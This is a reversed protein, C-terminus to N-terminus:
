NLRTKRRSWGLGVLGLGVMALTAPAPVGQSIEYQFNAGFYGDENVIFGTPFSLTPSVVARSTNWTVGASNTVTANRLYQLDTGAISAVVYDSGASLSIGSINRYRFGNASIPNSSLVSTSALLSGGIDWLGVATSGGLFGDSGFDWAGLATVDINQEATFTWGVVTSSFPNTTIGGAVTIADIPVANATATFGFLVALLAPM